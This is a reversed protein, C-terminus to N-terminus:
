GWRYRVEGGTIAAEINEIMMDYSVSASHDSYHAVQPTALVQPHGVVKQYTEASVDGPGKNGVDIAAGALHGEDLVKLLGEISWIVPNTMTIFYSGPSMARFFAENLINRNEPLSSLCNVVVDAQAVADYLNMGRQAGQVVMGMAEAVSALESGVAGQVGLISITKGILSRTRVLQKTPDQLNVAHSFGRFLDLAMWIVWEVVARRNSGPAYGLQVEAEQLLAPSIMAVNVFPHSVVTGAALSYIGFAGEIGNPWTLGTKGSCVYPFGECRDLWEEVTAAENEYYTVEGCSELWTRQGGNLDMPGTVVITPKM